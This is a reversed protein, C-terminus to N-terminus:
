KMKKLTKALNKEKKIKTSDTSKITLDKNSLKKSQPIGLNSHLEGKNNGVAGTIWNSKKSNKAM